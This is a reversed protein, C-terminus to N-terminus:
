SPPTGKAYSGLMEVRVTRRKLLELARRVKADTHHGEFEVFFLYENRAGPAPFSEIWTLNLANKKFALMADALSGPRHPLEFMVATKDQGTRRPQEGGIVAFRTVNNKNDEINAAVVNLGYRLAAQLSAVAAAGQKDAALQAAAATSTMEVLRVGPLHKSLWDRCQSLAQPKSYVEIIEQRSCRAMLMHHISLQVEGTIRIPHRAFMELTDAIRGDTSNELPVLGYDAQRHLLEDFVTAITGVPALDVTSGFYENAAQHSYSYQPGLYAVKVRKLLSKGASSLDRLLGRLVEPPLPGRNSAAALEQLERDAATDWLSEGQAHLQQAVKATWKARENLLKVLERDLKELQRHCEAPTEGGAKRGAKSKAM